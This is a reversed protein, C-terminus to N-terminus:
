LAPWAGCAPSPLYAFDAVFLGHTFTDTGEIRFSPRGRDNTTYQHSSDVGLHVKNDVTIYAIDTAGSESLYDVFGNSLDNATSFIFESFFNTSDYTKDLVYQSTAQVTGSLAVVAAASALRKM